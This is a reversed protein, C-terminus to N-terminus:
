QCYLEVSADTAAGCPDVIHVRYSGEESCDVDTVTYPGTTTEKYTENGGTPTFYWHYTWGNLGVFGRPTYTVDMTANNASKRQVFSPSAFYFKITGTVSGDTRKGRARYYRSISPPPTYSASTAGTIIGQDFLADNDSEAAAWEYHSTGTGGPNIKISAAAMGPDPADVTLAVTAETAGSCGDYVVIKYTGQKTCDVPNVTYQEGAVGTDQFTGTGPDFYWHYPGIGTPNPSGTYTVSAGANEAGVVQVIPPSSQSALPWFRFRLTASAGPRTAVVKYFYDYSPNGFLLTYNDPGPGLATYAGDDYPNGSSPAYYWAYAWTGSGVPNIKVTASAIGVSPADASVTATAEHFNWGSDGIAVSYIGLQDCTIAQGLPNLTYTLGNAGPIARKQGGVPTVYWQVCQKDGLCAIATLTVIQNATVVTTSAPAITLPEHGSILLESSKSAIQGYENWFLVSYFAAHACDGPVVWTVLCNGGACQGKSLNGHGDSVPEGAPTQIPVGNIAWQYHIPTEGTGTGASARATFMADDDEAVTLTADLDLDLTPVNGKVYLRAPASEIQFSCGTKWVRVSYRGANSYDATSITLEATTAGSVHGGDPLEVGDKRWRYNLSTGTALVKFLASGSADVAQSEPQTLIGVATCSSPADHQVTLGALEPTAGERFDRMLNARVEIYRGKINAPIATTENPPTVGSANVVPVFPWSPLDTIRDAARVEVIIRTREPTTGNMTISTWRTNDLGADEVHDWVGSPQITSMTVFGSMDSYNYPETNDGLDVVEIVKGLPRDSGPPVPGQAPDIRFTRYRSSTDAGHCIAWIMGLSDVAVGIPESGSITPQGPEIFEMAISGVQTGSTTLHCITGSSGGVWVNGHADVVIGRNKNQGISFQTACHDARFQMVSKASYDEPEKNAPLWVDGSNPDVGVGYLDGTGYSEHSEDGDRVTGLVTGGLFPPASAPLFRLLPKPADAHGSSWVAGDGGIVGGYGGAGFTVKRGTVPMGSVSDVFQHWNNGTGGVWVDNNRDVIITRVGTPAVRLYRLIAEDQANKVGGFTDNQNGVPNLWSLLTAGRSTHIRGDRFRDVCTNYVFPPKVYEGNWVPNGNEDCRTGGIVVGFETISGGYGALDDARNGVWVNGYRDVTTRSPSSAVTGAPAAGGPASYYEGVVGSPDSIRDRGAYIRSVTGKASNAISIYPLPATEDLPKIRLHGDAESKELNILIGNHINLEAADANGDVVYAAPDTNPLSTAAGFPTLKVTVTQDGAQEITGRIVPTLTVTVETQGEAIRASFIRPYDPGVGYGAQSLAYDSDYIPRGGVSYYVTLPDLPDQLDTSVERRIKFTATADGDADGGFLYAEPDASYIFVVPRAVQTYRDRFPDMSPDFWDGWDNFSYELWNPWDDGDPDGDEGNDGSDDMPNLGYAVEWGDGMGDDESDFDNPCTRTLTSNVPYTFWDECGNSLGDFDSDGADLFIFDGESSPNPNVFAFVEQGFAGSFIRRWPASRNSRYFVDYAKGALSPSLLVTKYTGGYNMAEPRVPNGGQQYEQLNSLGDADPNGNPGYPDNLRPCGGDAPRIPTGFYADMWYDPLGDGDWDLPNGDQGVAVYHYGIDVWGSDPTQNVQTTYYALGADAATRTTDANILSNLGAGYYYTGLPGSVFNAPLGTQFGTGGLSNAVGSFGNYAVSVHTGTDCIVQATGCFFNDRIYWPPNVESHVYTIIFPSLETRAVNNYFLNNFLSVTYNVQGASTFNADTFELVNNVLFVALGSCRAANPTLRCGSLRCNRFSLTGALNGGTPLSLVPSIAGGPRMAFETFGFQLISNLAGPVRLLAAAPPSQGSPALPLSEQVNGYFCFRNPTTATGTSAVSAGPTGPLLEIGYDGMVGVVFGAGLTLSSSLQVGNVLRDLPEYHYGLDLGDSVADRAVKQMANWTTPSSIPTAATLPPPPQCTTRQELAPILGTPLGSSTAQGRFGSATTLYHDGGGQGEFPSSVVTWYPTGFPAFPLLFGNHQGSVTPSGSYRTTINAFVSNYFYASTPTTTGTVLTQAQDVTCNYFRTTGNNLGVTVPYNVNAFLANNVTIPTYCCGCGACGSVVVGKICNVLQAHWLTNGNVAGTIRLAEKCYKFRLHSLTRSGQYYLELAPNAYGTALPTGTSGSVEEGISNDDKATFFAPRYGSTKCTVPGSLRLYATPSSPYKFVVGGEIVVASSCTVPGTLSYTTDGYFTPIPTSLTALYDMRLGPRRTVSSQALQVPARRPTAKARGNAGATPIALDALAAKKVKQLGRSTGAHEDLEPLGKLEEEVSGYEVSEVLLTRLGVQVLQKVVPAGSEDGSGLAAATARGTGLVYEDFSLVEDVLDPTVRKQRIALDEEVRLPRVVRDPEPVSFFDSYIQIRCTEPSFGWDKVDLRNLIVVDQRFSHRETTYVVDARVGKGRLAGAYVVQNSNVLVGECDQLAGIIASKGSATDYLGLAVPTSRLPTGGGPTGDPALVTVANITNLNAALRVRHQIRLAVFADDTLDFSPDSPTWQTDNWYHMGTGLEVVRGQRATEAMAPAAGNARPATDPPTIWTRSHPGTEALVRSGLATASSTTTTQAVASVVFLTALSITLLTPKM